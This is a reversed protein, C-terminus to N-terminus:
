AAFEAQFAQFINQEPSTDLVAFCVAKFANRYRDNRLLCDGFLRAIEVPDNRFVGCGWAGLIMHEYGAQRCVELVYNTRRSMTPVRLLREDASRKALAGANVAPSTLIGVLQPADYLRGADDRIVVVHPSLIMHDTYLPSKERRNADYYDPQTLLSDFLSSSRALSEEQAQSGGLFGGGPNKASAFNLCVTNPQGADGVIRNIASLTTENTVSFQTPEREASQEVPSQRCLGELEAPRFMRTGERSRAVDSAIDVRQGSSNEYWGRQVIELTETAIHKRSMRNNTKGRSM